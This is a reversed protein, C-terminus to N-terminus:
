ILRKELGAEREIVHVGAIHVTETGNVDQALYTVRANSRSLRMMRNQYAELSSGFDPLVQAELYTLKGSQTFLASGDQVKANMTCTSACIFHEQGLIFGTIFLVQNEDPLSEASPHPTSFCVDDRFKGQICNLASFINQDLNYVDDLSVPTGAAGSETRITHLAKLLRLTYADSADVEAIDSKAVGIHETGTPSRLSISLGDRSTFGVIISLLSMWDSLTRFDRTAVPKTCIKCEDMTITADLIHSRLIAKFFNQPLPLLAPLIMECNIEFVEKGGSHSFILVYDSMPKPKFKATMGPLFKPFRPDPLAIGFREDVAELSALSLPRLGLLGDIIESTPAEAISGSIKTGRAKEYGLTKKQGSKREAYIDMDSGIETELYSALDAGQLGIDKGDKFQFTLFKNHLETTGNAYEKRLRKLIKELRPGLIHLVRIEAPAREDNLRIMYIFAPVLGQALREAVSLSVTVARTTSLITKIQLSCTLPAPRKDFSVEGSRRALKAEIIRDKGIRDPDIKGVLLNTRSMQYDFFHEGIRGIDDAVASESM